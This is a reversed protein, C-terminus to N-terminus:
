KKGSKPSVEKGEKKIEEFRQDMMRILQYRKTADLVLTPFTSNIVGSCGLSTDNFIRKNAFSKIDILFYPATHNKQYNGADWTNDMFIQVKKGEHTIFGQTMSHPEIKFEGITGDAKKLKKYTKKPEKKDGPKLEAGIVDCHIDYLRIGALSSLYQVTRTYGQCVCSGYLIANVSGNTGQKKGFLMRMEHETGDQTNLTIKEGYMRSDTEKADHDYTVNEWMWRSVAALKEIDSDSEMVYTNVIDLCKEHFNKMESSKYITPVQRWSKGKDKMLEEQEKTPFVMECWTSNDFFEEGEKQHEPNTFYKYFDKYYRMDLAYTREPHSCINAILDLYKKESLAYKDNGYFELDTIKEFDNINPITILNPNHILSLFQINKTTTKPIVVTELDICDAIRLQKLNPMNPLRLTRLKKVNDVNVIEIQELFEPCEDKIQELFSEVYQAEVDIFELKKVKKLYPLIEIIETINREDISIYMSEPKLRITTLTQLQELSCMHMLKHPGLENRELSNFNMRQQKGVLGSTLIKKTDYSDFDILDEIIKM